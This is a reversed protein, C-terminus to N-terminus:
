RAVEQFTAHAPLEVTSAWRWLVVDYAGKVLGAIVFPAGLAISQAAGALVPGAPRVVYRATGTYAAAATRESPDVLAMVFAQRTPVDMQSLTTRLLLLSIAVTANPAFAVAVLLVNSPFHSFVMTLLLGFRMALISAALFSLVQLVGMAAFVVGLEGPSPDFRRVLWAGVFAQVVFGGGFSDVAFLASLRLVVPRSAGLAARDDAPETTAADVGPSLSLAVVVGLVGILALVLFYREDGPAGPFASRVWAPIVASLAGLVVAGAAVANYVGFGRVLERGDLDDALMAQEITTFPGSDVVDTSLTGTLAVVALLWPSSSWAFVVATVALLGYLAAYTRRRGWRDAWRGVVVSKLVTGAVVAALVAVTAWTSLGRHELTAALLVTALGYAFGRLAQAGLMRRADISWAVSV